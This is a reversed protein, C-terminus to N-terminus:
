SGASDLRSKLDAIENFLERILANHAVTIDATRFYIIEGKEDRTITRKGKEDYEVKHQRGVWLEAGAEAGQEAIFGPYRRPDDPSQESAKKFEFTYSELGLVSHSEDITMPKIAKKMTKSSTRVIRGGNGISATTTGAGALDEMIMGGTWSHMDAAHFTQTNASSPGGSANYSQIGIVVSATQLVMAAGTASAFNTSVKGIINSGGAMRVNGTTLVIDQTAGTSIINGSLQIDHLNTQGNQNLILNGQTTDNTMAIVENGDIRLHIATTDGVRLAPENGATAAADTSSNVVLRYFQATDDGKWFSNGTSSVIQGPNGSLSAFDNTTQATTGVTISYPDIDGVTSGTTITTRLFYNTVTPYVDTANDLLYVRAHDPVNGVGGSPISTITVSLRARKNLDVQAAPSPSTEIDGTLKWYSYRIYRRDTMSTSLFFSDGGEYIRVVGADNIDVFKSLTTDWYGGVVGGGAATPWNRTNDTAGANTFAKWKIGGGFGKTVIKDSSGGFDFDGRSIFADGDGLNTSALTVDSATASPKGSTMTYHRATYTTSLTADWWISMLRSNTYDWGIKPPYVDTTFAAFIGLSSWSSDFTQISYPTSSPATIGFLIYYRGTGSIVGYVLGVPFQTVSSSSTYTYKTSLLNGSMDHETVKYNNNTGSLVLYTGAPGKIIDVAGSTSIGKITTGTYTQSVTPASRPPQVVSDITLVAGQQIESAKRIFMGDTVTVTQATLIGSIINPHTGDTPFDIYTPGVSTNGNHGQLISGDAAATTTETLSTAATYTVTTTSPVGLVLYTGDYNVLGGSDGMVVNIKDGAVFTHVNALTLTRTTGSSARFTIQNEQPGNVTFGYDGIGVLEGMDGTAVISSGTALNIVQSTSGGAIQDITLTGGIISNGNISDAAMNRFEAYGDSRIIWGISGAVYNGSAIQSAAGDDSGSIGVVASGRVQLNAFSASGSLPISWVPITTSNVVTTATSILSGTTIMGANITTTSPPTWTSPTTLSSMQQEVQIGDVYLTAANTSQTTMLHAPGVATGPVSILWSYRTWTSNAPVASIATGTATSTGSGTLYRIGMNWFTPATDGTNTKAYASVIYNNSPAVIFNHTTQSPSFDVANSTSTSVWKFAQNNFFHETAIVSVTSGVIGINTGGIYYSTAWEFDAFEPPIINEGAQILLAAARITGQNIELSAVGSTSALRFGSTAAVYDFSQIAGNVSSTGVTLTAKVNLANIIGNGATILDANLDHIKATTITADIINTAAILGPTGSTQASASSKLGGNDVAIIKFFWTQTSSGGSTPIQFSEVMAPGVSVVGLMNAAAPTFGTTTSAYVEYYTVDSEMAGGAAKTGLVTVQAQMTNVAVTPASPTSPTANTAGTGTATSTYSSMNETWDVAALQFDYDVYPVLNQVIASTTTKDYRVTNWPTTGNQRYRLFYGALDSESNATWSVAASTNLSANNATTITAALGTPTAPPTTDLVFPSVPTASASAPTASVQGFVDVAVIKFWTLTFTTDTYFWHTVNGSFIRNAGSPTFGSTTGSYIEYHDLDLDGVATWVFDVGSLAGTAAFGTVNSPVPNAANLSGSYAGKIGKNNTARVRMSINPQATGFLSINQDLTLSWINNTGAASPVIVVKVTAGATLEVDYSDIIASAGSTDTTVANWTAQFSNGVVAWTVSGPVAPATLDQATTFDFAESWESYSGDSVARVQAVYETGPLLNPAVVRM